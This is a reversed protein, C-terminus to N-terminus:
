ANNSKNGRVIVAILIIFLLAGIVWYVPNTFWEETTTTTSSTTTVDVKPTTTDQAFALFSFFMTLMLIGFNELKRTLVNRTKM